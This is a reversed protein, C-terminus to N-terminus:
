QNILGQFIQKSIELKEEKSINEDKLMKKLKDKKNQVKMKNLRLFTEDIAKKYDEYNLSNFEHSTFIDNSIKNQIIANNCFELFLKKALEDVNNVTHLTKEIFTLVKSTTEDDSKYNSISDKILNKKDIDNAAFALKIINEEMLEFQTRIDKQMLKRSNTFEDNEVKLIGFEENQKKLIQTKLINESVELKYSATKIYDDLIVLNKIQYLIEVIQNVYTNKEQPTLKGNASSYIQNLQYDLLLPANQVKKLYEDGGFERIYEDPDKGEIEQVVRIECVNNNNEFNSDYQKINGLNNFINKIVDAGHDIAKKGALDTDFALYIRRSPSYRSILKIHQPTLATGCTAVANEVGGLHASIVDFYGEMFIVSDKEKIADKARNLGFLVSSKNYIINEPSNIYKAGQSDLIKRAGFAITNSNTDKIPIIIRNRFRDLFQGEHEYVLGAKNIEDVTFGLNLLYKKLDYSGKPALGLSFKSIAVENIGRLSLYELAKENTELNKKFFKAVVDMMDFLREKLAKNKQVNKSNFKPLEIGLIQAQEEILDAFSQNNIKMLFALVDGGEGCGFCKFIQKDPTVVFSPTKENHFPCLGQFNRGTKKLVVYRSVVDAIDLSNKIQEVAQQYSIDSM